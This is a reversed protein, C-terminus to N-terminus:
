EGYCYRHKASMMQIKDTLYNVLSSKSSPRHSHGGGQPMAVGAKPIAEVMTLYALSTM